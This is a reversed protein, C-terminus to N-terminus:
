VMWLYMHHMYISTIRQSTFPPRLERKGLELHILVNWVLPPIHKSRSSTGWHLLVELTWSFWKENLFLGKLLGFLHSYIFIAIYRCGVYTGCIIDSQRSNKSHFRNLIEISGCTKSFKHFSHSYHTFVYM